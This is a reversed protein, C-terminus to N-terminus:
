KSIYVPYDDINMITEPITDLETEFQLFFPNSLQSSPTHQHVIRAIMKYLKFEPYREDGNKKYLMNKNNDDAVWTHVISCLDRHEPVFKNDMVFDFMSCALRCLDFSPNPEILPKSEDFFPECNYQSHANGDLDFSDSCYTNGQFHYIARGFDILKFLKGYTPVKYQKNNYQYYLYPEETPIYMINNTHLDNHTFSFCKQYTLLMMIIQFLYAIGNESNVEGNELLMDFTNECKEICIMQVPYDKIYAYVPCDESDEDSYEDEGISSYDKINDEEDSSNNENSSETSCSSEDDESEDLEDDGDDTVISNKRYVEELNEVNIDEIDIIVDTSDLTDFVMETNKISSGMKIKTRHNRTGDSIVKNIHDHNIYFLKGLNSHFFDYDTLYEIDDEIDVKFYDQVGLFSGYFDLGHQFRHNHKMMNTLYCFFGDVYSSNNPDKIKKHVEKNSSLDRWYPLNRLISSQKDYKGIMYHLPDLLPSYKIFVQKEVSKEIGESLMYVKNESYLHYKHNLSCEQINSSVDKLTDYLPNYFQLEHIQNVSSDCSVFDLIENKQEIIPLLKNPELHAVFPIDTQTNM